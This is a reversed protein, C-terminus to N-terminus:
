LTVTLISFGNNNFVQDDVKVLLLELFEERPTTWCSMCPLLIEMALDGTAVPCFNGLAKAVAPVLPRVESWRGETEVLVLPM